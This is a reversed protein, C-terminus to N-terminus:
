FFKSIMNKYRLRRIFAGEKKTVLYPTNSKRAEFYGQLYHKLITSQKFKLSMKFASLFALAFDYRLKYLAAGQSKKAELNYSQGTPRLHKVQLNEITKVKFGHFEALLEDLTDWGISPKIGGIQEFCKRSYLKIPGRVHTKNSIKEYVWEKNSNQIYINGACMGLNQEQRFCRRMVQFYDKPLVVDADFKGLLDYSKDSFSLGYYFNNVIKSGPMHLSESQNKVVKIWDHEKSFKEAIKFTQDTSSDDAIILEDPPETQEIMSSLCATIYQEENYAPIIISVNM